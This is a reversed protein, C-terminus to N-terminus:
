RVIICHSHLGIQGLADLVAAIQNLALCECPKELFLRVSEPYAPLCHTELGDM